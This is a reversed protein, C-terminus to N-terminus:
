PTSQVSCTPMTIRMPCAVSGARIHINGLSRAMHEAATLRGNVHHIVAHERRQDHQAAEGVENRRVPVHRRAARGIGSCM